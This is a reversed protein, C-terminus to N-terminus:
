NKGSISEYSETCFRAMGETCMYACTPEVGSILVYLRFDFKKEDMLMPNNMYKQVIINPYKVLIENLETIFRFIRIGEGRAGCNPKSIYFQQPDDKMSIM